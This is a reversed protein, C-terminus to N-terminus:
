FGEWFETVSIGLRRCALTVVHPYVDQGGGHGKILYIHFGPRFLKIESGKGRRAEVGFERLRKAFERTKLVRPM